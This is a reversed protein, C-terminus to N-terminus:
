AFRRQAPAKAKAAEEERNRAPATTQLGGLMRLCSDTVEAVAKDFALANARSPKNTGSIKRV